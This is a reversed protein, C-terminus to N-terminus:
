WAKSRALTKAAEAPRKAEVAAASWAEATLECLVEVVRVQKEEAHVSVDTFVARRGWGLMPRFFEQGPKNEGSSVEQLEVRTGADGMVPFSRNDSAGLIGRALAAKVVDGMYVRITGQRSDELAFVQQRYKGDAIHFKLATGKVEVVHPALRGLLGALRKWYKGHGLAADHSLELHKDVAVRAKPNLRTLLSEFDQAANSARPPLTRNM